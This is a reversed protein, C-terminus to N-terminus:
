AAKRRKSFGFLGILATGFLWVAAPVPVVAGYETWNSYDATGRELNVSVTGGSLNQFFWMETSKKISFYQRNTEFSNGDGDTKNVYSVPGRAPGFLALLNNLLGLQAAENSSGPMDYKDAHTISLSISGPPSPFPGVFGSCGTCSITNGAGNYNDMTITNASIGMSVSGAILALAACARFLPTFRITKM